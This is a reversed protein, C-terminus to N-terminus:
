PHIRSPHTYINGCGERLFGILTQGSREALEIALSSPASVAAVCPIGATWAKQLIEFSLRGSVMLVHDALPLRGLRMAQGLVKDVANHRGVDEAQLAEERHPTFLGAAHVGGTLQFLDQGQRLRFPLSAIWDSPFCKSTTLPPLSQELSDLTAKGCLGCSSSSFVHRTLRELDVKVHSALFVNLVNGRWSGEGRTCHEVEVVEEMSKVIGETLLFGLALDPDSGPTRMTIAISRGRVRIELPEEVAVTDPSAFAEPATGAKLVHRLVVRHAPFVQTSPDLPSGNTMEM